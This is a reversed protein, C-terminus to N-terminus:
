DPVSEHPLNPLHAAAEDLEAAVRELEPTLTEAKEGITRANAIAAAREDKPTQGIAKNARNHEARLQEVEALLERHRADLKLIHDVGDVGGRREYSARVFAPNDRLLKLDIM